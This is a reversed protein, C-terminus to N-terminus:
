RIGKKEPGKTVETVQVVFISTLNGTPATALVVYQREPMAIQTRIENLTQEPPSSEQRTRLMIQMVLGARDRRDSLTGSANFDAMQAGFRPSSKVEFRGQNSLGSSTQVVMQGVQRPDKIGLRSLEAVVDKLDDAPPEGRGEGSLGSALWIVRVNYPTVVTTPPEDLKAILAGAVNLDDKSGAAIISRSREDISVRLGKLAIASVAKAASAPDAYILTFCKIQQETEQAMPPVDVKKLLDALKRQTDPSGAAILANTRSDFVFRCDDGEALAKLVKEATQWDVYKLKYVVLSPSEAFNSKSKTSPEAIVGSKPSASKGDPAAEGDIAAATRLWACNLLVGILLPSIRFALTNRTM